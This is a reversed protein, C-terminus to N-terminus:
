TSAVADGISDITFQTRERKARLDERVYELSTVANQTQVDQTESVLSFHGMNSTAPRDRRPEGKAKKKGPEEGSGLQIILGALQRTDM